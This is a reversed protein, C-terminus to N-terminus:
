YHKVYGNRRLRELWREQSTRTMQTVLVREIQDRVEDLPQIGAYKRDEAFLLYCADPLMIPASVEGKQLKFAPESFEPKLNSRQIPGWDGGKARATSSFEKALDAFSEGAKFRALIMNAKALLQEDTSTEDNRALQIIRLHIEDERYFRDKNENYYTEIRVPSVVSQSKKQQSRMYSYIIEEEKDKRFDRITKGQSRLYALFKSRDGEFREALDDAVANDIYSDPIHRKEDKRFEKIILVRDILDQIVGDQLQALREEFDKQDRADQQLQPMLPGIERMVDAVTIIKDEAVAVIGNAYQLRLSDAAARSSMAVPQAAAQQTQAFAATGSAASLFLAAFCRFTM